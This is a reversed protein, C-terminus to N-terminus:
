FIKQSHASVSLSLEVQSQSSKYEDGMEIEIKIKERKGYLSDCELTIKNEDNELRFIYRESILTGAPDFLSIQNIGTTLSEVPVNIITSEGKLFEKKSYYVKGKSQIILYTYDPSGTDHSSKNRIILKLSDKGQDKVQLVTGNDSIPPLYFIGDNNEAEFYYTKGTEPNFEVLGLGSSDVTIESIVEGSASKILGRCEIPYGYKNFISIGLKGSIGYVLKGGEPYFNVRFPKKESSKGPANFNVFDNRFPNVISIAKMFCGYPLLNKMRNTYARLTYTGNRITDPIIFGSSGTGNELLIKAQAVPHNYPDILEVYAFSSKDSLTLTSRDFLYTKLWLYEGAVYIARDTHIYIDEFPMAKCYGSLKETLISLDTENVQCNLGTPSLLFLFIILLININSKM